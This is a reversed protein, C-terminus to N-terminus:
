ILAVRRVAPRPTLREDQALRHQDRPCVPAVSGVPLATRYGCRACVFRVGYGNLTVPKRKAPCTGFHISGDPNFPARKGSPLDGWTIAAGCDRCVNM